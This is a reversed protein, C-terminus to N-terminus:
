HVELEGEKVKAIMAAQDLMQRRRTEFATQKEPSEIRPSATVLKERPAFEQIVEEEAPNPAPLYKPRYEGFTEKKLVTGTMDYGLKKFHEAIDDATHDTSAIIENIFYGRLDTLVWYNFERWFAAPDFTTQQTETKSFALERIRSPTPPKDNTAIYESIAGRLQDMTLDCLANYWTELTASLNEDSLFWSDTYVTRLDTMITRFVSKM